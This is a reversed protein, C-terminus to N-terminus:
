RANWGGRSTAVVGACGESRPEDPPGAPYWRLQRWAWILCALSLATAIMEGTAVMTQGSRIFEPSVHALRPENRLWDARGAATAVIGPVRLVCLAQYPTLAILGARLSRGQQRMLGWGILALGALLVVAAIRGVVTWLGWPMGLTVLFALDGQLHPPPLPTWARGLHAAAYYAAGAVSLAGM